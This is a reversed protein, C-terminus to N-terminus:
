MTTLDVFFCVLPIIPAVKPIARVGAGSGAESDGLVGFLACSLGTPAFNDKGEMGFTKRDFDYASNGLAESSSAATLRSVEAKLDAPFPIRSMNVAPFREADRLARFTEEEASSDEEKTALSCRDVPLATFFSWPKFFDMLLAGLLMLKFDFAVLPDALGEELGSELETLLRLFISIM